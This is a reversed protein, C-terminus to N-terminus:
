RPATGIREWRVGGGESDWSFYILAVRGILLDDQIPGYYRSDNSNDRFDGMVFTDGEALTHPGFNDRLDFGAPRIAPDSHHVYPEEIPAGDVFVQKDRIEITQPAVAIVRKMFVKSRDQPYEFVLLDGPTPRARVYAAKDVWIYDGIQLTPQMSASPVRFAQVRTKLLARGLSGGILILVFAGLYVIGRQYSRGPRHARRKAMVFADALLVVMGAPLVVAMTWLLLRGPVVPVLLVVAAGIVSVTVWVIVGRLAAGAIVHGLPPAFLNAFLAVWPRRAPTLGRRPAAGASAESMNM